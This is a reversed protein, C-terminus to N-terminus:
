QMQVAGSRRRNRLPDADMGARGTLPQVTVQTLMEGCGRIVRLGVVVQFHANLSFLVARWNWVVQRSGSTIPPIAKGRRRLNRYILAYADATDMTMAPSEVRRSDLFCALEERNRGERDGCAFGALLEGNVTGGLL